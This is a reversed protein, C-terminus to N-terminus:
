PLLSIRLPINAFHLGGPKCKENIDDAAIGANEPAIRKKKM